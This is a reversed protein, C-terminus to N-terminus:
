YKRHDETMDRETLDLLRVPHNTASPQSDSSEDDAVDRDREDDDEDAEDNEGYNQRRTTPCGAQNRGPEELRHALQTAM